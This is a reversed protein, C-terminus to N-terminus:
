KHMPQTPPKSQIGDRGQFGMLTKGYGFAFGAVGNGALLAGGTLVHAPSNPCRCSVCFKNLQKKAYM